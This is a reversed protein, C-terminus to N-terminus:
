WVVEALGSATIKSDRTIIAVDEGFADRFVLVTSVIIADHIDLVTPLYEIIAEDLPYVTCNTASAIHALIEHLDITIRNRAYLFAIEALVITPIVLQISADSLVDRAAKSLRPDDELFWVIAHTDVVYFM